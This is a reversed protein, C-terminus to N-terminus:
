LAPFSVFILTANLDEGYRQIHETDYEKTERRYNAFFELQPDDNRIPPLFM